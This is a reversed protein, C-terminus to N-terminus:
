NRSCRSALTSAVVVLIFDLWNFEWIWNIQQTRYAFYKRTFSLVSSRWFVIQMARTCSAVRPGGEQVDEQRSTQLECLAINIYKAWFDNTGIRYSNKSIHCLSLICLGLWRGGYCYCSVVEDEIGFNLFYRISKFALNYCYILAMNREMPLADSLPCQGQDM